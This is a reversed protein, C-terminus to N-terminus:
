ATCSILEPVGNEMIVNTEALNGGLRFKLLLFRSIWDAESRLMIRDDEATFASFLAM